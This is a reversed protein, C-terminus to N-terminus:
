KIECASVEAIHHNLFGSVSIQQTSYIYTPLLSEYLKVVTPDRYPRWFSKAFFLKKVLNTM